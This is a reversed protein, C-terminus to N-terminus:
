EGVERLSNREIGRQTWAGSGGDVHEVLIQLCALTERPRLGACQKWQDRERHDRGEQNSGEGGGGCVCGVYVYVCICMVYM